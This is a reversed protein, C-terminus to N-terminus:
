LLKDQGPNPDSMTNRASFIKHIAEHLERLHLKSWGLQSLEVSPAESSPALTLARLYAAEAQEQKGQIRLVAGLQLQADASQPEYLVATRYAREAEALYGAAKLVHGYQVWIPANQPKRRLAKRYYGAALRWKQQDRAEDALTIVSPSGYKRGFRSM